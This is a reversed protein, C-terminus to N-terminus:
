TRTLCRMRLDFLSMSVLLTVYKIADASKYTMKFPLTPLICHTPALTILSCRGDIGGITTSIDGILSILRRSAHIRPTFRIKRM